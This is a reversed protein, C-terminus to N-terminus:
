LKINKVLMLRHHALTDNDTAPILHIDPPYDTHRTTDIAHETADNYRLYKLPM